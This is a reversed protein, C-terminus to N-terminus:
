PLKLEMGSEVKSSKLGNIIALEIPDINLKTAITTLTENKGVKYTKSSAAFDPNAIKKTASISSSSDNSPVKFAEVDILQAPTSSNTTQNTAFNSVIQVRKPEQAAARPTDSTLINPLLLIGFCAVVVICLFQLVSNVSYGFLGSFSKQRFSNRPQNKRVSGSYSRNKKSIKKSSVSNIYTVRM